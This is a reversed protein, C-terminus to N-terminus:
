WSISPDEASVLSSGKRVVSAKAAASSVEKAAAALISGISRCSVPSSSTGRGRKTGGASSSCSAPGVWVPTIQRTSIGSLAASTRATAHFPKMLPASYSDGQLAFGAWYYPQSWRETRRMAQQAERLAAASLMGRELLARYFAEMLVSTARDDIAWLSVLVQAAGAYVFAQPLGLFGEGRLERGLATRCASLVVLDAGLELDYIEHPQLFGNTPRGREDLLSLVLGSLGAHRDNLISHTAFHLIRYSALRGSTVMQRSADLGVAVFREAAPVMATLIEAERGSAPLREFRALGLDRSTRTIPEEERGAALDPARSSPWAKGATSLRPDYRDFVPDAVV